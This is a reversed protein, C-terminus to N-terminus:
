AFKLLLIALNKKSGEFKEEDKGTIIFGRTEQNEFCLANAFIVDCNKKQLKEKGNKVLNKEEEAAFGIIKLPRNEVLNGVIELIDPNKEFELIPTKDKKIKGSVQNKVAFDSVAAVAFFADIVNNKLCNIVSELMEKASQVSILHLNKKPLIINNAVKGQVLFVEGGQLLIEKAILAGQLGSSFNSIFRVDDIKEITAGNTILFKKGKLNNRFKFFKEVEKGIFEVDALKGTGEEECLLKGKVPNIVFVEEEELKQINKATNVNNWMEVNMAPAIIVPTEPLKALLIDLGLEGGIGSAFKNIFSASAPCILILDVNRSLSIHEMKYTDETLVEQGSLASVSLPTLFLEGGQSLVTKVKVGMKIFNRIIELSKFASVSGTIILLIEKM